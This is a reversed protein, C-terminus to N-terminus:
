RGAGMVTLALENTFRERAPRRKPAPAEEPDRRMAKRLGRVSVGSGTAIHEWHVGESRLDRALAVERAYLKRM